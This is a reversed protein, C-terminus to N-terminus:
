LDIRLIVLLLATVTYATCSSRAIVFYARVRSSMDRHCHRGGRPRISTHQSSPSLVTVTLEQSGNLLLIRCHTGGPTFARTLPAAAQTSIAFRLLWLDDHELFRLWPNLIRIFHGPHGPRRGGFLYILVHRCADRMLRPAIHAHLSPAYIAVCSACHPLAPGLTRFRHNQNLAM